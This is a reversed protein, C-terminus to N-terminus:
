RELRYIFYDAGAPTKEVLTSDCVRVGARSFWTEVDTRSHLHNHPRGDPRPRKAAQVRSEFRRRQEPTATTLDLSRIGIIVASRSCACLNSLARQAHEPALWNIFRTSVVVDVRFDAPNMELADVTEFRPAATGAREAAKRAENLMDTSVDAAIVRCRLRRYLEMFRGTGCPLDLVLTGPYHALLAEVASQEEKWKETNERRANYHAAMEGHYKAKLKELTM